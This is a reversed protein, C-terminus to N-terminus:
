LLLLVEDLQGKKGEEQGPPLRKRQKKETVGKRRWGMACKVLPFGVRGWLQSM